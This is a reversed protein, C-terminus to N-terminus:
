RQMPCGLWEVLKVDIGCADWIRVEVVSQMEVGSSMLISGPDEQAM